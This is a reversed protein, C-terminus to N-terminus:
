TKVKKGKQQLDTDYKEISIKVYGTDLLKQIADYIGEHYNMITQNSKLGQNTEAEIHIIIM